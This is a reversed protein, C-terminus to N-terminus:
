KASKPKPGTKQKGRVARMRVRTVSHEPLCQAFHAVMDDDTRHVPERVTKYLEWWANLTTASVPPKSTSNKPESFPPALIDPPPPPISSPKYGYVMPVTPVTPASGLQLALGEIGVPDLRVGTLERDGGTSRLQFGGGAVRGTGKPAVITISGLDWFRQEAQDIWDGSELLVYSGVQSSPQGASVEFVRHAAARIAGSRIGAELADVVTSASVPRLREIAARPPIWAEYEEVPIGDAM